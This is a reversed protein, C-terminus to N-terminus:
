SPQLMGSISPIAKSRRNASAASQIVEAASTPLLLYRQSLILCQQVMHKWLYLRIGRKSLLMRRSLRKAASSSSLMVTFNPNYARPEASQGLALAARIMKATTNKVSKLYIITPYVGRQAPKTKWRGEDDRQQKIPVNNLSRTLSVCNLFYKEVYARASSPTSLRALAARWLDANFM